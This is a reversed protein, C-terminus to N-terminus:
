GCAVTQDATSAVQWCGVIRPWSQREYIYGKEKCEGPAGKRELYLGRMEVSGIGM